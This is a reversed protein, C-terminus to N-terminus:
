RTVELDNEMLHHDVGCFELCRMKYIGVEDFTFVIQQVVGPLINVQKLLTGGPSYIGMAHNVDLARFEIKTKLHAKVRPPEITWAFQRGTIKMSQPTKATSNDTWYPIQLITGGLIVVLFTV